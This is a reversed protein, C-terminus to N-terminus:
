LLAQIEERLQTSAMSLSFARYGSRKRTKQFNDFRAQLDSSIELPLGYRSRYNERNQIYDALWRDYHCGPVWTTRLRPGKPNKRYSRGDSRLIGCDNLKAALGQTPFGLEEYDAGEFTLMALRDPDAGAKVMRDIVKGSGGRM